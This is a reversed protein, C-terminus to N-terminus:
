SPLKPGWLLRGVRDGFGGDFWLLRGVRDGKDDKPGSGPWAYVGFTSFAFGFTVLLVLGVIAWKTWRNKSSM